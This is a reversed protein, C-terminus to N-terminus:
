IHHQLSEQLTPHNKAILPYKALNSLVVWFFAAVFIMFLGIEMFGFGGELQMVGPTVMLYFDLWHGLMVIVTVIKLISMQRKSDRSMLALFPFVFNIFLNIHFIPSYNPDTLRQVFYVTEEPINAYYILLFQSFWLYMWFISFGFIFKGLDHLHNSTVISLYGQEKLIIIVFTIFALGSVWWSSFVYWGFMTSFWHPDISMIWDWASMSSSVAFFVLFWAASSRIKKWRETGGGEIDEALANKRMYLFFLFWGGMFVIMRGIFFPLNLYAKKGNLIPDFQPSNTDYLYDHTWHFLDYKALLFVGLILVFAFPLWNGIAMSVRLMGTSWHSSSAYQLAFFFVGIIGLGVFFMNNIWLNAYLRKLWHATEHHEAEAVAEDASSHQVLDTSALLQESVANAAHQEEEHSADGMNMFIGLALLLIGVVLIIAINRKAKATFIYKEDLTTM